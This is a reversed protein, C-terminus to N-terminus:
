KSLPRLCKLLPNNNKPSKQQLFKQKMQEHVQRRVQNAPTRPCGSLRHYPEGSSLELWGLESFFNLKGGLNGFEIRWTTFSHLCSKSRTTRKIRQTPVDSSQRLTAPEFVLNKNHDLKKHCLEDPSTNVSYKNRGCLLVAISHELKFSM